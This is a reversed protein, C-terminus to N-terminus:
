IHILSLVYETALGYITKQALAIVAFGFKSYAVVIALAGAAFSLPVGITMLAFVGFLLILSILEISM